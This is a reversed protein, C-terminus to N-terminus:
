DSTAPNDASKTVHLLAVLVLTVLLLLAVSWDGLRAFLTPPLAGPLAVDLVGEVGVGLRARVRGYPDVLASIGTNAVRVLPLGEEVARMAAIAFHQAPGAGTGFWADNTLNLLWAPRVQPDAVAGPFIAEYCVLPSLPPLGALTMTRRGRGATFNGQGAVIRDLPLVDGLPVYEGFPVLHAKDYTAVLGAGDGIAHVANWFRRAGPLGITTRPAGTILLGGPPVALAAVSRAAGDTGLFFPVATEPWLVHTPATGGAAPRRSLAVHKDLHARRHEPVWKLRQDINAQVLRLRVDAVLGAGGAYDPAAALRIAGGVGVALPLAVTFLLTALVASRRGAGDVLTAPMAAAAVSVLSLGYVGVWSAVQIAAPVDAWVYGVLNWPFGTLVWGRLWEFVLWAGALVLVRAAGACGLRRWLGVALVAALAAFLGLLVALGGVAFPIMWATRQPDVLLAEAIWHVGLLFHGIGFWWGTALARRLPREGWAIGDLLWVLGVFAPLLAPVVFWPPLALTAMAGLLAAVGARRGGRLAGVAQALVTTKAALGPRRSPPQTAASM